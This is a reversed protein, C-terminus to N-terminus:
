RSSVGLEALYEAICASLRDIDDFTLSRDNDTQLVVKQGQGAYAAAFHGFLNMNGAPM